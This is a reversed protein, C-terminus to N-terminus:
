KLKRMGEDFKPNNYLLGLTKLTAKNSHKESTSFQYFSQALKKNIERTEDEDYNKFIDKM